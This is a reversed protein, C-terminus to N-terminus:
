YNGLQTNAMWQKFRKARDKSVTIPKTAENTLTLELKGFSGANIKKIANKNVIQNRNIQFFEYNGLLASIEKLSLHLIYNEGNHMLLWNVNQVQDIMAIETISIPLQAGKYYVQIKRNKALQEEQQLYNRKHIATQRNSHMLLHFGNIIALFLTVIPLENAFYDRAFIDEGFVAYYATTLLVIVLLPLVLGLLLQWMMRRMENKPPNKDLYTSWFAVWYSFLYSLSLTYILAIWYYKNQVRDILRDRERISILFHSSYPIVIGYFLFLWYWKPSSKEVELSM